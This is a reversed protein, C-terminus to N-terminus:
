EESDSHTARRFELVRDIHVLLQREVQPPPHKEEQRPAFGDLMSLDKIEEVEGIFQYGTDTTVDWVVIAVKQNASLNALTGLCFWEAVALHNNEPVINVRGAAAIHPWGRADATAILAYRVKEALRAAKMLTEPNM